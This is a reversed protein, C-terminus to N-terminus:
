RNKYDEEEFILELSKLAELGGNNPIVLPVGKIIFTKNNILIDLVAKNKSNLQSYQGLLQDIYVIYTNAYYHKQKEALFDDINKLSEEQNYTSFDLQIKERLRQMEIDAEGLTTLFIERQSLLRKQHQIANEYRFELQAIYADLFEEKNISKGLIKEVSTKLVNRYEMITLMNEGIIEDKAKEKNYFVEEISLVEKYLTVPLTNMLKHSTGINTSIAVSINGLTSNNAKKFNQINTNKIEGSNKSEKSFSNVYVHTFAFFIIGLITSLIFVKGMFTRLHNSM